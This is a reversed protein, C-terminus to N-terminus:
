ARKFTKGTPGDDDVLDAGDPPNNCDHDTDFTVRRTFTTMGGSPAIRSSSGPKMRAANDSIKAAKWTGDFAYLVPLEKRNL